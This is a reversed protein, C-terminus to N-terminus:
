RLKGSDRKEYPETHLAQLRYGIADLAKRLADEPIDADTVIVTEAKSHSSSVKERPLDPSHRRQHPKRVHRM